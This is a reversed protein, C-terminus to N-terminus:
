SERPDFSVRDPDFRRGAGNSSRLNLHPLFRSILARRVDLPLDDWGDRDVQPAPATRASGQRALREAAATRRAQVEDVMARVVEAPMSPDAGFQKGIERLRQNAALVTMEDQEAPEETLADHLRDDGLLLLLRDIVVEDVGGVMGYVRCPACKYSIRSTVPRHQGGYHSTMPQWCEACRLLGTLLQVRGYTKPTRRDTSSFIGRLALHVDLDLIAPWVAPYTAGKHERLGAYRARGLMARVVTPKWPVGTVTKVKRHNLDAAIGRLSEGALVRAACEVVVAAERPLVTVKDKMYGFPRLGGVPLGKEALELHKRRSRDSKHESEYRAASGLMRAVMRGSPTSLDLPGATVSETPVGAKECVAIYRELEIPARHLRDTHWALVVDVAGAEIDALLQDYGPRRKGSYASIDNDQHIVSVSYGLRDALARCDQEQRAVGLGSGARDDSIRVYVAARKTM